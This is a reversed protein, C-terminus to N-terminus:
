IVGLCANRARLLIAEKQKTKTEKILFTKRSYYCTKCNVRFVGNSRFPFDSKIKDINCTKCIM